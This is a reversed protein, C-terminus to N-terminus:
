EMDKGTYDKIFFVCIISILAIFILLIVASYESGTKKYLCNVLMPILATLAYVVNYCFAVGTYRVETPFNEAIIPYYCVTYLSIFTQYILIFLILNIFTGGYLMNFYFFSVAIFFFSIILFIKKRQFSDSFYGFIILTIISWGYGISIGLYVDAVSYGYAISFYTPMCLAFMVLTSPFLIFGGVILLKHPYKTLLTWFPNSLKRKNNEFYPSETTRSRIFYAVLALFGGLIFPIRWGWSQMKDVGLVENMVYVVFSATLVGFTVFCIMLACNLGRMSKDSHETIFTTAGPLEAGFSLGQFIRLLVIIVTAIIGCSHYTPVIGMIFTALAMLVISFLFVNKRGFRDGFAGFIVGGIPRVFYGVAFLGFSAILSVYYDSSPFFAHSIYQALFVYIIFDYYELGAGISTLVATKNINMYLVM